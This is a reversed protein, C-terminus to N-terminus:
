ASCRQVSKKAKCEGAEYFGLCTGDSAAFACEGEKAYATCEEVSQLSGGFAACCVPSDKESSSCFYYGACAYDGIRATDTSWGQGCTYLRGSDCLADGNTNLMFLGDYSSCTLVDQSGQTGANLYLPMELFSTGDFYRGYKKEEILASIAYNLSLGTAGQTPGLSARNGVVKVSVDPTASQLAYGNLLVEAASEYSPRASAGPVYHLFATKRGAKGIVSGADVLKGFATSMSVSTVVDNLAHAQLFDASVKDAAELLVSSDGITFKTSLTEIKVDSRDIQITLPKGINKAAEALRGEVFARDVAAWDWTESEKAVGLLTQSLAVKWFTNLSIESATLANKVHYLKMEELAITVDRGSNFIILAILLSTFAVMAIVLFITQLMVGEGKIM